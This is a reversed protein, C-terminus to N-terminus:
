CTRQNEGYILDRIWRGKKMEEAVVRSWPIIVEQWAGSAFEETSEREETKSGLLGNEM